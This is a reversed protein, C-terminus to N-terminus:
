DCVLIDFSYKGRSCRCEDFIEKREKTTLGQVTNLVSEFQKRNLQSNKQYLEHSTITKVQHAFLIVM